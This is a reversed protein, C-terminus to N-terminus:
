FQQVPANTGLGADYTSGFLPETHERSGVGVPSHVLFILIVSKSKGIEGLKFERLLPSWVNSIGKWILHNVVWVCLVVFPANVLWSLGVGQSQIRPKCEILCSFCPKRIHQRSIQLRFYRSGPTILSNLKWLTARGGM